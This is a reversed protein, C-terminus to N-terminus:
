PHPYISSRDPETALYLIRVAKGAQLQPGPRNLTSVKGAYTQGNVQYEYELIWPFQGQIRVSLNERVDTIQGRVADGERLVRVTKQAEQYRWMLLVVGIGLCVIGLLLFPIGVFATIIALTLAAGLVTFIIGILGFIFGAIAGGDASLLRWVYSTSIPRPTPPLTALEESSAPATSDGAPLLGGCNSCNPQFTVYNTGCWPCVIM